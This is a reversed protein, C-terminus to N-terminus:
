LCSDTDSVVTELIGEEIETSCIYCLLVNELSSNNTDLTALTYSQPHIFGPNLINLKVVGASTSM